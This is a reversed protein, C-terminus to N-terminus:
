SKKYACLQECHKKFRHKHARRGQWRHSPSTNCQMFCITTLDSSVGPVFNSVTCLFLRLDKVWFWWHQKINKLIDKIKGCISHYATSSLCHSRFTKQLLASVDTLFVDFCLCFSCCLLCSILIIAPLQFYSFSHSVATARERRAPSECHGDTAKLRLM